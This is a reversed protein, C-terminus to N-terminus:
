KRWGFTLFEARALLGSLLTTMIFLHPIPVMLFIHLSTHWRRTFKHPYWVCDETVLPQTTTISPVLLFLIGTAFVAKLAM